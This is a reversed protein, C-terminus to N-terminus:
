NYIDERKFEDALKKQARRIRQNIFQKSVGKEKAISVQLEGEIYHRYWCEFDDSGVVRKAIDIIDVFLDPECIGIAEELKMDKGDEGSLCSDLSISQRPQDRQAIYGWSSMVSFPSYNKIVYTTLKYNVYKTLYTNFLAKSPEYKNYAEILAMCAVQYLDDKDYRPNNCRRKSVLYHLLGEYESLTEELNM